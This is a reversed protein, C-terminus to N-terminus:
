IAGPVTILAGGVPPGLTTGDEGVGAWAGDFPETGDAFPEVLGGSLGGAGGRPVSGNSIGSGGASEGNLAGGELQDSRVVKSGIHVVFPL